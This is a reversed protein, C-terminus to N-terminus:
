MRENVSITEIMNWSLRLTKDLGGMFRSLYDGRVHFTHTKFSVVGASQISHKKILLSNFGDLAKDSGLSSVGDCRFKSAGADTLNVTVNFWRNNANKM